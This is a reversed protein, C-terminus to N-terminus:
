YTLLIELFRLHIKGSTRTISTADVVLYDSQQPVGVFLSLIAIVHFRHFFFLCICALFVCAAGTRRSGFAANKRGQYMRHVLADDM